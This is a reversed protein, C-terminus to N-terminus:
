LLNGIEFGQRTAALLTRPAYADGIVHCEV